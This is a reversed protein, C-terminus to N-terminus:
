VRECWHWTGPDGDASYPVGQNFFLGTPNLVCCSVTTCIGDPNIQLVMGSPIKGIDPGNFVETIIAARHAGAKFEGGPTGYAVYHIIRGVSPKDM